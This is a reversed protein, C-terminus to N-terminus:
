PAIRFGYYLHGCQEGDFDAVNPLHGWQEFGFKELLRASDKNIDLLIAFLTKLGLQPSQDIAHAILTSAVGRGRFREHIYYSIEATYRLAMRGPRYPSLSCWGMLRGDSCAVFVPYRDPDHGRLWARRSDISVPALDATASRMAVAQNYIETIAPVDEDLAVRIRLTQERLTM